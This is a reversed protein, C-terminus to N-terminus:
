VYNLLEALSVIRKCDTFESDIDDRDLLIANMGVNRAGVVDTGYQDGVHLAEEAALRAKALAFLFIPPQPKSAGAEDSTVVVDLYGELGLERYTLHM